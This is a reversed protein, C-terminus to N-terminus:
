MVVFSVLDLMSAVIKPDPVSGPQCGYLLFRLRGMGARLAQLDVPKAEVERVVINVPLSPEPFSSETLKRTIAFVDDLKRKTSSKSKLLKRKASSSQDPLSEADLLDETSDFPTGVCKQKRWTGLTFIQLMMLSLNDDIFKAAQLACMDMDIMSHVTHVTLVYLIIIVDM